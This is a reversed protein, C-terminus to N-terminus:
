KFIGGPNFLVHGDMLLISHDPLYISAGVGVVVFLGVFANMQFFAVNIRQVDGSRCLAHLAARQVAPVTLHTGRLWPESSPKEPM